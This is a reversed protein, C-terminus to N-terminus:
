RDKNKKLDLLFYYLVVGTNYLIICILVFVVYWLLSLM